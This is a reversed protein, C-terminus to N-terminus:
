AKKKRGKGHIFLGEGKRHKEFEENTMGLCQPTYARCQANVKGGHVFLGKGRNTGHLFMGKGINNINGGSMAYNLIKNDDWSLGYKKVMGKVGAIKMMLAADNYANTTSKNMQTLTDYTGDLKKKQFGQDLSSDIMGTINGVINAGANAGSRIADGASQPDINGGKRKGNCGGSIIREFIEDDTWNLKNHDRFKKMSEFRKMMGANKQLESFIKMKAAKTAYKGTLQDKEFERDKQNQITSSISGVINSVGESGAKIGEMILAPNIAGGEKTKHKKVQTESFTIDCGVGNTKSKEIKNIQRQTFLFHDPGTLNSNSLRLTVESNNRMAKKFEGKQFDSVTIGYSKYSM